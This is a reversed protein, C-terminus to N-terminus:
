NENVLNKELIGALIDWGDLCALQLIQKFFYQIHVNVVHMVNYKKRTLFICRSIYMLSAKKIETCHHWNVNNLSKATSKRSFVSNCATWIFLSRDCIYIFLFPILCVQKSTVTWQSVGREWLQVYMCCQCLGVGWGEWYNRQRLTTSCLLRRVSACCEQREETGQGVESIERQHRQVCMFELKSFLTKGGAITLLFKKLFLFFFIGSLLLFRTHSKM